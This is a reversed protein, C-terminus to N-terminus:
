ITPNRRLYKNRWVLFLVFIFLTVAGGLWYALEQPLHLGERAILIYTSCVATMFLAPILTIVYPKRKQTLYVTLAWLTFVALTQNCWAFYRWLVSFNAHLIVFGAVFLPVSIMLRKLIPKQDVRLVDAVILRASRFATDGSTIPAAIVGLIALFGGVVGLWEKTISDVIVAANDNGSGAAFLASGEETHFFYTAAAAWILAVIGETIMAGYFVPRGYKENTMCRAMLPSQTAHFGSIAGCAISIFMMPFIPLGDPHTNAIGDTLEPLAPHHWFIMFLIGAAMFILAIAFIPYIKGIIKDIPLLTALVYYVFVVTAWFSLDLSEPTLKALLGAPGAVFVAGVLVMLLVTFGRMFQKFNVGLYRGITEPLSEGGNRLSIMGALFDHVAGAFISGLVIWLYSATGFKAGMIAGFIPGLGAINLFQIMFIKWTPMPIYDVGAQKTYAPTKRAPDVGFIKEVFKCFFFYGAILALLAITFTFM